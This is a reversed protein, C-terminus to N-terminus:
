CQVSSAERGTSQSDFGAQPVHVVRKGANASVNTTLQLHKSHFNSVGGARWIPNTSLLGTSIFRYEKGM